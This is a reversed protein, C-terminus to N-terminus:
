FSIEAHFFSRSYQYRENDKQKEANGNIGRRQSVHIVVAVYVGRVRTKRQTGGRPQFRLDYRTCVSLFNGVYIEVSDDSGRVRTDDQAGDNANLRKGAILLWFRRKFFLQTFLKRGSYQIYIYISRGPV